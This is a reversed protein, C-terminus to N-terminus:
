GQAGVSYRRQEDQGGNSSYILGAPPWRVIDHSCLQNQQHQQEKQAELRQCQKEPRHAILLLGSSTEFVYLALNTSQMRSPSQLWQLIHGLFRHM